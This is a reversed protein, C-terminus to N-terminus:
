GVLEGIGLDSISWFCCLFLANCKSKLKLLELFPSAALLKQQLQNEIM